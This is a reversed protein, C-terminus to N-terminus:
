HNNLQQNQKQNEEEYDLKIDRDYALEAYQENDFKLEEKEKEVAELKKQTEEKEKEITTNQNIVEEVKEKLKKLDAQSEDKEKTIEDVKKVTDEVQKKLAENEKEKDLLLMKSSILQDTTAQKEELIKKNENKLEEIQRRLENVEQNIDQKAPSPEAPKEPSQEVHEEQQAEKPKEPSAQAEPAKKPIMQMGLVDMIVSERTKQPAQGKKQSANVTKDIEHLRKEFLSYSENYSMGKAFHKSNSTNSWCKKNLEDASEKSLTETGQFFKNKFADKNRIGARKIIETEKEVVEPSPATAKLEEKKKGPTSTPDVHKALSTNHVENERESKQTKGPKM